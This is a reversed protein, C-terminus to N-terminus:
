WEAPGAVARALPLFPDEDTQLLEPRVSGAEQERLPWWHPM